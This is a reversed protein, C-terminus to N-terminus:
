DLLLRLRENVYLMEKANRLGGRNVAAVMRALDEPVALRRSNIAAVKMQIEKKLLDTSEKRSAVRLSKLSAEFDGNYKKYASEEGYYNVFYYVPSSDIVIKTQRHLSAEIIYSYEMLFGPHGRFKTPESRVLKWSRYKDPMLLNFRDRVDDLKGSGFAATVTMTAGGSSFKVGRSKLVTSKWDPPPCISLKWRKDKFVNEKIDKKILKIPGAKNSGKKVYVYKIMGKPMRITTSDATKITVFRAEEQVISGELVAGNNLVIKDAFLTWCPAIALVCLAALRKL